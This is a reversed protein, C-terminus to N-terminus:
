YSSNSNPLLTIDTVTLVVSTLQKVNNKMKQIEEQKGIM